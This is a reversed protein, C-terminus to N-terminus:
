KVAVETRAAKEAAPSPISATGTEVRLVTTATVVNNLDMFQAAGVYRKNQELTSWSFGVSTTAGAVVKGPVALVLKGGVDSRTVVWSNLRHKMAAVNSAYAGVCVKWTGAAPNTFQLNEDSGDSGVYTWTGSPALVGLDHDDGPNSDAQFLAFRNVVTNVPVDVSYVTINPTSVGATCAAQMQASSIGGGALTTQAGITAEKLGGKATPMVGSYGTRVVFLKSGSVKDSTIEPPASVQLGVKASVPSRVVHTGDTLTVSGFQWVNVAAGAATLQVAFSASAGPALSLSSPTVTASFGPVAVTATYNASASGVNTVTRRVSTTGVVSAVTISPLNLNYTEDLTGYTTCDSAPSVSAKNVKCNYQVYDAKALDYVLGPNTAKNPDIHGAGQSWPLLGNQPAALGDNLTSYATTM